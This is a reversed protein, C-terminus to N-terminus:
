PRFLDSPSTCFRMYSRTLLNGRQLRWNVTIVDVGDVFGTVNSGGPGQLSSFGCFQVSNAGSPYQDWPAGGISTFDVSIRVRDLASKFVPGTDVSSIASKDVM